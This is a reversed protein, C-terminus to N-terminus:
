HIFEEKFPPAIYHAHGGHEIVYPAVPAKGFEAWYAIEHWHSLFMKVAYRRAQADIQGDPLMGAELRGRTPTGGRYNKENLLRAAFEANGGNENREIRRLKDKKYLHGYFSAENNHFKMFSQGIKWCLTKLEANWPRVQGKEWVQNPNLGAYSWVHGATPAKNIDIHAILGAALVPGIGHQALAWRGVTYSQAFAHLAPIISKELNTMQDLFHTPIEVSRGEKALSRVQGALAIRHEQVRYYLDVVSRSAERDMQGSINRLERNFTKDVIPVMVDIDRSDLYGLALESEIIKEITNNPNVDHPIAYFDTSM